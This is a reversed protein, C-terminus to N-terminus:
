DGGGETRAQLEALAQAIDPDMGSADRPPRAAKELKRQQRKAEKKQRRELRALEKQRKTAGIQAM